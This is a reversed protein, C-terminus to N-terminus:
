ERSVAAQVPNPYREIRIDCENDDIFLQFGNQMCALLFSQQIHYKYDPYANKIRLYDQAFNSYDWHLKTNYFYEDLLLNLASIAAKNDKDSVSYCTNDRLLQHYHPYNKQHTIAKYYGSTLIRDNGENVVLYFNERPLYLKEHDILIEEKDKNLKIEYKIYHDKPIVQVLISGIHDSKYLLFSTTSFPAPTKKLQLRMDRFKSEEVLPLDENDKTRVTYLNFILNHRADHDFRGKAVEPDLKEFGDYEKKLASYRARGDPCDFDIPPELQGEVLLDIQWISQSSSDQLLLLLVCLIIYLQLKKM